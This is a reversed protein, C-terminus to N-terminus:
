TPPRGRQPNFRRAAGFWGEFVSLAVATLILAVGGAQLADLREGFGGMAILLGFVPVLFLYLSLRGVEARQLLWFWLWTSLATGALALFLLLGIFGGTWMITGHPEFVASLGLLVVSGAVLQWATLSMLDNGPHLRKVTVSSVAASASSGLALMAGLLPHGPQERLTPLAMLSVGALGLGLAFAKILGIKEGLFLAALVIIIHPQTNGLVSAIGAGTYAPSAFMAGFTLTTALVGLPLIWRALRAEPWLPKRRIVLVLLLALGGLLTRAGAFRLSPAFELGVKIAPYCAAMPAIVVLMLWAQRVPSLPAKSFQRDDEM